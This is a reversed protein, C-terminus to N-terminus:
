PILFVHITSFDSKLKTSKQGTKPVLFVQVGASVAIQHSKTRRLSVIPVFAGPIQISAVRNNSSTTTSSISCPCCVDIQLNQFFEELFLTLMYKM